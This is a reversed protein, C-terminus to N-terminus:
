SSQLLCQKAGKAIRHRTHLGINKLCRGVVSQPSGSLSKTILTFTELKNPPSM